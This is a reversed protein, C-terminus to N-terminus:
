PNGRGRAQAQKARVGAELWACWEALGEGTKCSTRFVRIEPNLARAHAVARDPDFDTCGLLDAKTIVLAQARRFIGPYKQPKDDGEVTSLLVVKADEGLDYSSPCVLNGVNEIILLELDPGAVAALHREVMAADLHCTGGTVIQRVPFGYPQLRRADNETQVDGVLVAARVRGQLRRLTEELLTTKGSGPSSILNVCFVGQEQWRRRLGAALEDNRSLIRQGIAVKEQSETRTEM